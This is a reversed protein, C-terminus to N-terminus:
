SSLRPTGKLHHSLNGVRGVTFRREAFRWQAADATRVFTDVYTGTIIPQLPLEPTAQLVAYTSTAAMQDDGVPELVTNAVLHQTLPTGDGHAKTVSRYFAAIEDAGTALVAGTEDCVSGGSFLQGVGDFDGTDILRCYSALLNRILDGDTLM